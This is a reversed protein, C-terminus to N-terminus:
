KMAVLVCKKASEILMYLRFSRLWVKSLKQRPSIAAAPRCGKSDAHVAPFCYSVAMVAANWSQLHKLGTSLNWSVKCRFHM